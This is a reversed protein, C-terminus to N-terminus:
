LCSQSYLKDYIFIFITYDYLIYVIFLNTNKTNNMQETVKKCQQSAAEFMFRYNNYGILNMSNLNFIFFRIIPDSCIILSGISLKILSTYRIVRFSHYKLTNTLRLFMRHFFIVYYSYCLNFNFNNYQKIPNRFKIQLFINSEVVDHKTSLRRNIGCLSVYM